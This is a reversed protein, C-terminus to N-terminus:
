ITPRWLISENPICLEGDLTAIIIQLGNNLIVQGASYHHQYCKGNIAPRCRRQQSFPSSSPFTIVCGRGAIDAYTGLSGFARLMTLLAATPQQWDLTQEGTTISAWVSGEGQAQSNRYYDDIDSLLTFLLEPTQKFIKACLSDFTEDEDLLIPKQLLIDGADYENSLKHLTIGAYISQKLILHPLPTMGRGEPLLTPHLNIAYKLGVPVPIKWPYEASYFLDVGEALLSQMDALRPKDFCLNIGNIRAFHIVKESFGSSEGTYIVAIQHGEKLFVDLCCFLPDYGFYAIKM